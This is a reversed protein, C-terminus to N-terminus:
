ESKVEKAASVVPQTIDIKSDPVVSPAPAADVPVSIGMKSYWDDTGMLALWRGFNHEFKARVEIPLNKFSEEGQMVTQLIEAYNHPLETTDLYMTQRRNLATTDGNAYQALIVHIDVSDRHSQIFDYINEQSTVELTITGDPAFTPSYVDHIRSGPNKIVRSHSDYRTRFSVLQPYDSM